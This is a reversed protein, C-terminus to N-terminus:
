DEFSVLGLWFPSEPSVQVLKQTLLQLNSSQDTHWLSRPWFGGAYLILRDGEDFRFDGTRINLSRDLGLLAQPLPPLLDQSEASMEFGAEYSVSIPAVLGSKKQILLHPSGVQAYAIQSGKRLLLLIELGAQYDNQNSGRYLSENSILTAIRLYNAENTLSSLFEFPSTIEVDAKAAQIYKAIDENVRLGDEPNGWSTSIALFSGDSETYIAPRPRLAKTSYSREEIRM